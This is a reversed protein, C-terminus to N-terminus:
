RGPVGILTTSVFTRPEQARLGLRALLVTLTTANGQATGDASATARAIEEESFYEPLSAHTWIRLAPCPRRWALPFSAVPLWIGSPLDPDCIGSAETWLRTARYDRATCDPTITEAHLAPWHLRGHSLRGASIAPLTGTSHAAHASREMSAIWISSM